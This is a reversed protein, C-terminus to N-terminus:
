RISEDHFLFEIDDDNSGAGSTFPGGHL